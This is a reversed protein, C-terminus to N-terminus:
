LQVRLFATSVRGRHREYCASLFRSVWINLFLKRGEYGLYRLIYLLQQVLTGVRLRRQLGEMWYESVGHELKCWTQLFLAPFATFDQRVVDLSPRDFKFCTVPGIRFGFHGRPGNCVIRCEKRRFWKYIKWYLSICCRVVSRTSLEATSRRYSWWWWWWWWWEWWWTTQTVVLFNGKGCRTRWLTRDVAEENLVWSIMCHFYYALIRSFNFVWQSVSQSVSRGVSKISQAFLM